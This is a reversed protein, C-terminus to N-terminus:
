TKVKATGKEAWYNVTQDRQPDVYAVLRHAGRSKLAQERPVFFGTNSLWVKM